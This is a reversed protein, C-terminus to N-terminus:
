SNVIYHMHLKGIHGLMVSFRNLRDHTKGCLHVSVAVFFGWLAIAWSSVSLPCYHLLLSIHLQHSTSIFKACLIIYFCWTDWKLANQFTWYLSCNLALIVTKILLRKLLLSFLFSWVCDSCGCLEQHLSHSTKANAISWLM